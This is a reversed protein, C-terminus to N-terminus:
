DEPSELQRIRQELQELREQLTAADPSSETQPQDEPPPSLGDLWLKVWNVPQLFSEAAQNQRQLYNLYTSSHRFFERVMGTTVENSRLLFHLMDTPFVSMKEPHRDMIIQALVARTIDDGTQSDRIEVSKGSQVMDEIESLSIYRSTTSAYYRRNPYRKILVPNDAM